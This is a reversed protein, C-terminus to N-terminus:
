SWRGKEERTWDGGCNSCRYTVWHNHRTRVQRRGNNDYSYKEDTGLFKKNIASSRFSKSCHPCRSKWWEYLLAVAVIFLILPWWSGGESKDKGTRQEKADLKETRGTDAEPESSISTSEMSFPMSAHSVPRSAATSVPVCFSLAAMLVFFRRM